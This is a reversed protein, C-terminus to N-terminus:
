PSLWIIESSLHNKEVIEMGYRLAQDTLQMKPKMSHLDEHDLSFPVVLREKNSPVFNSVIEQFRKGYDSSSDNLYLEDEEAVAEVNDKDKSQYSSDARTNKM